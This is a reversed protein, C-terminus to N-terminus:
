AEWLLKEQLGVLGAKRIAQMMAGSLLAFGGAEEKLRFIHHEELCGPRFAYSEIMRARGPEFWRAETKVIDLCDPFDRVHLATYGGGQVRIPLPDVRDGLLPQMAKLARASVVPVQGILAPFDGPMTAGIWRLEPAKWDLAPLERLALLRDMGADSVPVLSQYRDADPLFEYVAVM